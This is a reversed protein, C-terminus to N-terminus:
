AGKSKAALAAIRDNLADRRGLIEAIFDARRMRAVPSVEEVKVSLLAAEQLWDREAKVAALNRRAYAHRAAEYGDAYTLLRPDDLTKPHNNM